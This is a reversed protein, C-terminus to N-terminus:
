SSELIQIIYELPYLYYYKIGGSAYTSRIDIRGEM